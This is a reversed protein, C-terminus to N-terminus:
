LEYAAGTQTCDSQRKMENRKPCCKPTISAGSTTADVELWPTRNLWAKVTCACRGKRDPQEGEARARRTASVGEAGAGACDAGM